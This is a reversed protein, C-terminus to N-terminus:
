SVESVKLDVIDDQMPTASDKEGSEVLNAERKRNTMYPLLFLM